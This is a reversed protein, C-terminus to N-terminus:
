NIRFLIIQKPFFCFLVTCTRFCMEEKEMRQEVRGFDENTRGALGKVKGDKRGALPSLNIWVNVGRKKKLTSDSSTSASAKIGARDLGPMDKFTLTTLTM